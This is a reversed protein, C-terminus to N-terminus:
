PHRFGRGVASPAEEMYLLSSSGDTGGGEECGDLGGASNGLHVAGTEARNGQLLPIPTGISPSALILLQNQESHPVGPFPGPFGGRPSGGFNRGTM